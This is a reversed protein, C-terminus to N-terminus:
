WARKSPIKGVWPHFVCREHRRCQCAPEKGCAGGPFGSLYMHPCCRIRDRCLSQSFWPRFLLLRSLLGRTKQLLSLPSSQSSINLLLRSVLGRDQGAKRDGQTSTTWSLQVFFSSRFTYNNCPSIM